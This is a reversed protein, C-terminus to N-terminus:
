DKLYSTAGSYAGYLTGGGLAWAIVKQVAQRKRQADAISNIERLMQDRQQLNIVGSRELRDAVKSAQSSIENIDKARELDSGLRSLDQQLVRQEKATITRAKGMETAKAGRTEAKRVDMAYKEASRLFDTERLMTRNDRIFKEIGKADKIGELKSAFYRQGLQRALTENGGFADVVAKFDERTKFAKDPISQAPVKAYNVGKGVLQEDVLAKGVKSQFVRMPESDKRYQNIFKEIRGGSFDSMVDEVIKELRGAQQQGIADFGEAPLGRARDGLFRRLNELGEFSVPKGRVIGTVPDVERPSMARKIQLLQNKIADISANTLKTEPNVIEANIKKLAEKFVETDEIKQGAREKNLAFDFADAKLKEANDARTKKLGEYIKDAETKITTGIEDLTQPIPKTVGAETAMTVGPMQGYTQAPKAAERETIKQAAAARQEATQARTGAKAAEESVQKGTTTKLQEALEKGGGMFGRLKSVGAKGVDYLIKGGAGIVPLLEGAKQYGSVAERPKPIGIMEYGKQIDKTSPLYTKEAFGGAKLQEPVVFSEIDGLAGLTSTGLGYAIAGAKESITPEKPKAPKYEALLDRGETEKALLDRGQEMM